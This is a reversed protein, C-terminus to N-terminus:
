SDKIGLVVHRPEVITVSGQELAVVMMFCDHLALSPDQAMNWSWSQYPRAERYEFARKPDGYVFRYKAQAATLATWGLDANAQQMLDFARQSFMPNMIPGAWTPSTGAVSVPAAARAGTEITTTRSLRRASMIKFPATVIDRRKGMNIPFNTRPNKMGLFLQEVADLDEENLLDVTLKNVYQQADAAAYYTNFSTSAGASDAAGYRYTNEIGFLARLIRDEKSWGIQYSINGVAEVADGQKGDFLMTETAIALGQGHKELPNVDIWEADISGMPIPQNPLLPKTGVTPPSYRSRRGVNMVVGPKLTTVQDGLFEVDQFKELGLAELIRATTESWYNIAQFQSPGMAGDGADEAVDMQLHGGRMPRFRRDRMRQLVERGCIAEGIEAWSHTDATLLREESPDLYRSGNPRTKIGCLVDLEKSFQNFNRLTKIRKAISGATVRM